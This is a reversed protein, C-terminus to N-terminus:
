EKNLKDELDQTIQSNVIQSYRIERIKFGCGHSLMVDKANFENLQKNIDEVAKLSFAWDEGCQPCKNIKLNSWKM